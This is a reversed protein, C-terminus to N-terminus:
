AASCQYLLNHATSPALEHIFTAAM